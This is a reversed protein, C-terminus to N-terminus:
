SKSGSPVCNNVLNDLLTFLIKRISPFPVIKRDSDDHLLLDLHLFLNINNNRKVNLM